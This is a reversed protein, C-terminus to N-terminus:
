SKKWTLWGMSKRPCCSSSPSTARSTPGKCRRSPAGEFYGFAHSQNMLPVKVDKGGALHFPGDFPKAPRKRWGVGEIGERQHHQHIVAGKGGPLQIVEQPHRERTGVRRGVEVADASERLLLVPAALAREHDVGSQLRLVRRRQLVIGLDSSPYICQASGAARKEADNSRALM